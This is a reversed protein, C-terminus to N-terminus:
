EIAGLARALEWGIRALSDSGERGLATVVLVLPVVAIDQLLLIGVAARGHVGDIEARSVLLRLVCATSSLAIMAGVALAANTALGLGFCVGATLVGTLLVQLTGGGLAIPGISRLRRWSFELGITFLLLAVGLEAITALAKHSPMWNLANPGLLTGALLYGLIASQRLREALAGLLMAALLLILVDLLATWLDVLAEAQRIASRASNSGATLAGFLVNRSSGRVETRAAGRLSFGAARETRDPGSIM